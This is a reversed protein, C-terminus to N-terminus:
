LAIARKMVQDAEHGVLSSRHYNNFSIPQACNKLKITLSGIVQYWSCPFFSARVVDSSACSVFGTSLNESSFM